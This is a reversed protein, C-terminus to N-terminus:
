CPLTGFLSDLAVDPTTSVAQWTQTSPEVSEAQASLLRATAM